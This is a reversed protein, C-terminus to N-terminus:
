LAYGVLRGDKAPVMRFQSWKEAVQELDLIRKCLFALVVLLTQRFPHPALLSCSSGAAVHTRIACSHIAGVRRCSHQLTAQSCKRFLSDRRRVERGFSQRSPLQVEVGLLLVHPHFGHVPNIERALHIKHVAENRRDECSQANLGKAPGLEPRLAPLCVSTCFFRLFFFYYFYVLLLQLIM